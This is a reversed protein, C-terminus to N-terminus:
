TGRLEPVVLVSCGAHRLVNMSVSGMCFREIRSLGQRGIVILDARQEEAIELLGEAPHRQRFETSVPRGAEPFAVAVEELRALAEEKGRVQLAQLEAALSPVRGAPTAGVQYFPLATALRVECHSPLPLARLFRAARLATDSGDLGVVVRNLEGNLPRAVLVPCPAHCVVREAVSGLLFRAVANRGRSGLTILDPNLEEARRLVAEAATGRDMAQSLHAPSGQLAAATRELRQRGEAEEGSGAVTLIVIEDDGKLDLGRVLRAAALAGESGDTAYLIRM